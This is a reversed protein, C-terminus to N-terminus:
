IGTLQKYDSNNLIVEVTNYAASNDNGIKQSLGVIRFPFTGTTAITAQNLYAVSIGAANAAGAGTFDCNNGVNALTIATTSNNGAQAEFVIWPDDIIYAEVEAGQGGYYPSYGTTGPAVLNTPASWQPYWQTRQTTPDYYKCGWFVGVIGTSSTGLTVYGSNTTRVPDGKAIKNTDNYVLYRTTVKYNPVAGDMRRVPRFGWPGQTNSM